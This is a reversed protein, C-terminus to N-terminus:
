ITPITALTTNLQRVILAVQDAMVSQNYAILGVILLVLAVGILIFLIFKEQKGGKPDYLARILLNEQKIADFGSTSTFDPRLIRNGTEDYRLCNVGFSRFIDGTSVDIQKQKAEKSLKVSRDKVVLRGEKIEGIIYYDQVPHIVEVLLKQGRSAFVKMLKILMGKTLWNAFFFPVFLVVCVTIIQYYIAEM